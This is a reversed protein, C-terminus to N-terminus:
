APEDNDKLKKIVEELQEIVTENIINQAQYEQLLPIVEHKIKFYLENENQVLFYTHGVKFDKYEPKIGEDVIDFLTLTKKQLSEDIIFNEIIDRQPKSNIFAFRRRLAYDLFSISKDATNMTGIIYLNTPINLESTAEDNNITHSYTTRIKVKRYELGLILEGFIKSLDGRNIEDIILFYKNDPDLNARKCLELFIKDKVVFELGHESTKTIIGQVFDEYSYNPHFQVIEWRSNIKDIIEKEVEGDLTEYNRNVFDDYSIDALELFTKKLQNYIFHLAEYTKGTGPPGQLIIQKKQEITKKINMFNEEEKQSLNEAYHFQLFEDVNEKYEEVNLWHYSLAWYFKFISSLLEKVSDDTEPIDISLIIGKIQNEIAKIDEFNRISTNNENNISTNDENNITLHMGDYQLLTNLEGIALNIYNNEIINFLKNWDSGTNDNKELYFGIQNIEHQDIDPNFIIKIHRMGLERNYAPFRLGPLRSLWGYKQIFQSSPRKLQFTTFIGEIDQPPNLNNRILELIKERAPM